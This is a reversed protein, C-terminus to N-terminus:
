EFQAGRSVRGNEYWELVSAPVRDEIRIRLFALADLADRLVSERKQREPGTAIELDDLARNSWEFFVEGHAQCRIQLWALLPAHLILGDRAARAQALERVVSAAGRYWETHGGAANNIVLPAPSRHVRLSRAFVQELAHAARVSELEILFAAEVDFFEFYRRHLTQLRLL